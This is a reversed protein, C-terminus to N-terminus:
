APRAHPDARIDLAKLCRALQNAYRDLEGSTLQLIEPRHDDPVPSGPATTRSPWCM